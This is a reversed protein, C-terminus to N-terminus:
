IGLLVRLPILNRSHPNQEKINAYEIWRLSDIYKEAVLGNIIKETRPALICFQHALEEAEEGIIDIVSQRDIDLDKASRYLDTGYISHFMGAKVEEPPRNYKILIDATGFLHDLLTRGSHGLNSTGVEELFRKEKEYM